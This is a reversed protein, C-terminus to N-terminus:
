ATSCPEGTFQIDANQTGSCTFSYTVIHFGSFTGELILTGDTFTSMDAFDADPTDDCYIRFTGGDYYTTYSFMTGGSQVTTGLSVLGDMIYTYEVNPDNTDLDGFPEQFQVVPGVITLVDGAQSEQVGVTRTGEKAYSIGFDIVPNTVEAWAPAALVLVLAAMLLTQYRMPM